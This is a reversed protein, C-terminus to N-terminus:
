YSIREEYFWGKGAAKKIKLILFNAWVQPKEDFCLEFNEFTHLQHDDDNRMSPILPAIGIREPVFYEGHILWKNILSLNFQGGVVFNGWFKYNGGDRYLYTVRTAPRIIKSRRLNHM